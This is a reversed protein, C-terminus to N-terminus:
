STGTWQMRKINVFQIQSTIHPLHRLNAMERRSTAHLAGNRRVGELFTKVHDQKFVILRFKDM